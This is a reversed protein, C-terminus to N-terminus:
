IDHMLTDTNGQSLNGQSAIRVLNTSSGIFEAKAVVANRRSPRSVPQAHLFALTLKRRDSDRMGITIITMVHGYISRALTDLRRPSQSAVHNSM